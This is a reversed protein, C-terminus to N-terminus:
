PKLVASSLHSSENENYMGEWNIKTEPSLINIAKWHLGLASLSRISLCPIKLVLSSVQAALWKPPLSQFHLLCNLSYSLEKYFGGNWAPKTQKAKAESSNVEFAESTRYLVWSKLDEDLTAQNAFFFDYLLLVTEAAKLVQQNYDAWFCHSFFKEWM